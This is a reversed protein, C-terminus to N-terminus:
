CRYGGSTQGYQKVPFNQQNANGESASSMPCAGYFPRTGNGFPNGLSGTTEVDQSWFPGAPSNASFAMASSIPAAGLVLATVVAAIRTKM